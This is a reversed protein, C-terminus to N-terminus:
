PSQTKKRRLEYVSYFWIRTNTQNTSTDIERKRRLVVQVVSEHRNPFVVRARLGVYDHVQLRGDESEQTQVHGLRHWQDINQIMEKAAGLLRWSQIIKGPKRGKRGIHRWGVRSIEIEGLSPNTRERAPANAWAQYFSRAQSKLTESLHRGIISRSGIRLVPLNRDSPGAGCLRIFDGKSHAGFRQSKPVLVLGKNDDTYADDSNLDTWWAPPNHREGRPDVYILVAPGPLRRWRPRHSEIYERGVNVGIHHPRKVADRRYGGGSKIHVFVVAGIDRGKKSIQIIGDIGDDNIQDVDQWKSDWLERVVQTSVRLGIAEQKRTAHPM